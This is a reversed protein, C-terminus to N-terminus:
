ATPEDYTPLVQVKEQTGGLGMQVLSGRLSKFSNNLCFVCRFFNYPNPTQQAQTKTQGLFIVSRYSYWLGEIFRSVQRLTPYAM